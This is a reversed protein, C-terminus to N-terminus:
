DSMIEAIKEESIGTATILASLVERLHSVEEELTLYANVVARKGTCDLVYHRGNNEIFVCVKRDDLIHIDTIKGGKIDDSAEEIAKFTYHYADIM